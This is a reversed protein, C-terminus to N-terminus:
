GELDVKLDQLDNYLEIIKEEDEVRDDYNFNEKNEKIVDRLISINEQKLELLDKKMSELCNDYWAQIVKSSKNKLRLKWTAIDVM